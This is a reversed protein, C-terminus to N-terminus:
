GKSIATLANVAGVYTDTPVYLSRGGTTQLIGAKKLAHAIELLLENGEPAIRGLSHLSSVAMETKAGDDLTRAIKSILGVVTEQHGWAPALYRLEALVWNMEEVARGVLQDVKSLVGETNSATRGECVSSIADASFEIEFRVRRTTKAYVRLRMSRTLDVKICKSQNTTEEEVNPVTVSTILIHSSLRHLPQTLQDVLAIPDNSSFEWYVELAQLSRYPVEMVSVGRDQMQDRFMGLAVAELEGLYMRMLEPVSHQLAFGYQHAQGILLNDAPLLPLERLFWSPKPHIALVTPCFMRPNRPNSAKLFRQAQVFRTLNLWAGLTVRLREGRFKPTRHAGSRFGARKLGGAVVPRPKFQGPGSGGNSFRVNTKSRLNKLNGSNYLSVEEGHATPICFYSLHNLVYCIDDEDGILAFDGWDLEFRDVMANDASVAQVTSFEPLFEDVVSM